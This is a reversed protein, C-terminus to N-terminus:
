YGADRDVAHLLPKGAEFRRINEAIMRAASPARTESAIHPTVTVKPHAWYPHDAPLPETRFVDLTAHAVHGRDLAEILADDDILPGRGPNIVCAGPALLSLASADLINETAPTQPLLLVVIQADRLARALTERGWLSSVGSIRKESRAWGTVPFGLDRLARACAAGLTGLGLITVPRDAALPPPAPDWAHDPNVIHADMGLHHRLVHGTVWEVMGQTLGEEDVMRTLPVRLTPNGVVNEVGAWLNHVARLATFPTFDQVPGNPAYVIHHVAAAPMDPALRAPLKANALAATLPAEYTEWADPTGAFLINVPNDPDTSM